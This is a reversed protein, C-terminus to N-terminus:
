WRYRPPDPVYGVAPFPEPRDRWPRSPYPRPAIGAAVLNEYSDYRIRIVEEPYSTAREFTTQQAPSWEREGHGTGLHQGPAGRKLGEPASESKSRGPGDRYSWGYPRYAERFLAIGIVGVHDPRGTLNAYSFASPVFEFAAIEAGNKRWGNIAYRQYPEFVYGAQNWSATQGTIANVGDVSVVALVREGTRNSISIGYRAGPRAAVWYEGRARYVPLEQGTDRDIVRIEALRASVASSAGQVPRYEWSISWRPHDYARAPLATLLAAAVGTALASALAWRPLARAVVRSAPRAPLATM